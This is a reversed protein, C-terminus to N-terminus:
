RRELRAQMSRENGDRLLTLEASWQLGSTLGVWLNGSISSGDSSEETGIQVQICEEAPSAPGCETREGFEYSLVGSWGGKDGFGRFVAEATWRLGPKPSRSAIATVQWSYHADVQEELLFGRIATADGGEDEEIFDFYDDPGTVDLIHGGSGVDIRLRIKGLHPKLVDPVPSIRPEAPRYPTRIRYSGEEGTVIEMGTRQPAEGPVRVELLYSGPEPQFGIQDSSVRAPGDGQMGANSRGEEGGVGGAGLWSNVAFLIGGVVLLMPLFQLLTKPLSHASGDDNNETRAEESM